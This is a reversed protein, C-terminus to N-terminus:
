LNTCPLQERDCLSRILDLDNSYSGEINNERIHRLLFINAENKSKAKVISQYTSVILDTDQSSVDLAKNYYYLARDFNQKQMYITAVFTLSEPSIPYIKLYDNVAADMEPYNDEHSLANIKGQHATELLPYIRLALSYNGENNIIKASLIFFALIGILLSLSAIYLTNKLVYKEKYILAAAIFVMLLLFYSRSYFNFQFLVLLSVVIFAIGIDVIDKSKIVIIVRKLVVAFFVMLMIGSLIGNEVIIDLFFNHSNNTLFEIHDVFQLSAYYFNYSGFGIIPRAHIAQISQGFYSDRANILTKFEFPAGQSVFYTHLESIGPIYFSLSSIILIGLLIIVLNFLLVTGIHKKYLNHRSFAILLSIVCIMSVYASRLSSLLIISTLSIFIVTQKWSRKLVVYIFSISWPILVFAGIPHHTLYGPFKYILQYTSSPVLFTVSTLLSAYLSLSYILAVISIVVIYHRLYRKIEDANNFVFIFIISIALYYLQYEFATQKNIAFITSVAVFVNFIVLVISLFFPIELKKKDFFYTATLLIPTFFIAYLSLGRGHTIGLADFLFLLTILLYVIILRMKEIM